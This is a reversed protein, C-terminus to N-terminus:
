FFDKPSTLESELLGYFVERAERHSECDTACNGRALFGIVKTNDVKFSMLM